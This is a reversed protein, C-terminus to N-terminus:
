QQGSSGIHGERSALSQVLMIIGPVILFLPWLQDISYRTYEGLLFIGGVTIMMLPGMIARIRCRSCPCATKKEEPMVTEKTRDRVSKALTGGADLRRSHDIGDAV